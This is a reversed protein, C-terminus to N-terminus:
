AKTSQKIIEKLEDPTKPHQKILNLLNESVGEMTVSSRSEHPVKMTEILSNIIIKKNEIDLEGYMFGRDNLIQRIINKNPIPTAEIGEYEREGTSSLNDIAERLYNKSNYHPLINLHNNKLGYELSFVYNVYTPYYNFDQEISDLINEYEIEYEIDVWELYENPNSFYEGIIEDGIPGFTSGRAEPDFPIFYFDIKDLNALEM